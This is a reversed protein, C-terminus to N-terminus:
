ALLADAVRSKNAVFHTSANASKRGEDWIADISSACEPLLKDVVENIFGPKIGKVAHYGAKVALGSLGGKDSVEEDILRCCDTVIAAKKSPDNIADALSM